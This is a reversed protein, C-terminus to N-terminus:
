PTTVAVRGGYVVLGYIVFIGIGIYALSWIPYYPMWWIASIALVAGAFVGIWRSIQSRAMVGLACLILLIGVILWLWGYNKLTTGLLANQLNEPLAGKYRFAWIGDFIRMIGAVGLVLASFVLWGKGDNDM